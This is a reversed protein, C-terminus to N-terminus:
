LDIDLENTLSIRETLHRDLATKKQNYFFQAYAVLGYKVPNNEQQKQEKKQKPIITQQNQRSLPKVQCRKCSSRYTSQLVSIPLRVQRTSEYWKRTGGIISLARFRTKTCTSKPRTSKLPKYDSLPELQLACVSVSCLKSCTRRSSRLM